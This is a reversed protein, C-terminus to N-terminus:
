EITVTTFEVVVFIQMNCTANTELQLAFMDDSRNRQNDTYRPHCRCPSKAGSRDISRYISCPADLGADVCRAKHNMWKPWCLEIKNKNQIKVWMRLFYDVIIQDLGTPTSNPELTSNSKAVALHGRMSKLANWYLIPIYSNKEKRSNCRFVLKEWVLQKEEKAVIQM